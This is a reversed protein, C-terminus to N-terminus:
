LVLFIHTIFMSVLENDLGKEFRRRNVDDGLLPLLDRAENCRCSIMELTLDRFGQLVEWDDLKIMRENDFFPVFRLLSINVDAM